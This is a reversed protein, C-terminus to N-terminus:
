SFSLQHKYHKESTRLGAYFFSVFNQFSSVFISANLIQTLKNFSAILCIKYCAKLTCAKQLVAAFKRLHKKFYSNQFKHVQGILIDRTSETNLLVPLCASEDNGFSSVVVSMKWWKIRLNWYLCKSIVSGVVAETLIESFYYSIGYICTYTKEIHFM